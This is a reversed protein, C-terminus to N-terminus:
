DFLPKGEEDCCENNMQRLCELTYALFSVLMFLPALFFMLINMIVFYQKMLLSEESVPYTNDLIQNIDDLDRLFFVFATMQIAIFLASPFYVSFMRAKVFNERSIPSLSLFSINLVAYVLFLFYFVIQPTKLFGFFPIVFVATMFFMCLCAVNFGRIGSPKNEKKQQPALAELGANKQGDFGVAGIVGSVPQLYHSTM